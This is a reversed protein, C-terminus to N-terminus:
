MAARIRRRLSDASRGTRVGMEAAVKRLDEVELDALTEAMEAAGVNV